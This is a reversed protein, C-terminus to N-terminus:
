GHASERRIEAHRERVKRSAERIQLRILQDAAEAARQESAARELAALRTGAIVERAPKGRRIEVLMAIADELADITSV